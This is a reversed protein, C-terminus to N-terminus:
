ILFFRVGFFDCTIHHLNHNKIKRQTISKFYKFNSFIIYTSM